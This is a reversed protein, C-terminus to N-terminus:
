LSVTTSLRTTNLPVKGNARVAAIEEDTAPRAPYASAGVQITENEDYTLTGSISEIAHAGDDRLYVHTTVKLGMADAIGRLEALSMTGLELLWANPSLTRLCAAMLVLRERLPPIM